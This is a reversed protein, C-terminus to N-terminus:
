SDAALVSRNARVAPWAVVSPVNGRIVRFVRFSDAGMLPLFGSESSVDSGQRLRGLGYPFIQTLERSERAVAVDRGSSLSTPVSRALEVVPM